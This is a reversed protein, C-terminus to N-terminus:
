SRGTWCSSFACHLDDLGAGLVVRRAPDEASGLERLGGGPGRVDVHRLEADRRARARARVVVGVALAAEVHERAPDGDVPALVELLGELDLGAVQEVDRRALR